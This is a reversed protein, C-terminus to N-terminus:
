SFCHETRLRVKGGSNLNHILPKTSLNYLFPLQLHNQCECLKGGDCLTIDELCFHLTHKIYEENCSGVVAASESHLSNHKNPLLLKAPSVKVAPQM